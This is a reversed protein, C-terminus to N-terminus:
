RGPGRGSQGEGGGSIQEQQQPNLEDNAMVDTHQESANQEPEHSTNANSTDSMENEESWRGVRPSRILIFGCCRFPLFFRVRGRQFVTVFARNEPGSM